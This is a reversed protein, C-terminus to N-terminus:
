YDEDSEEDPNYDPSLNKDPFADIGKVGLNDITGDERLIVLKSNGKMATEKATEIAQKKTDHLSSIEESNEGKVAWKNEHPM